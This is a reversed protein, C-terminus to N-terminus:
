LVMKSGVTMMGCSLQSSRSQGPHGITGNLSSMSIREEVSCFCKTLLIHLSCVHNLAKGHANTVVCRGRCLLVTRRTMKEGGSSALM